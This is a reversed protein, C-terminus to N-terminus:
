TGRTAVPIAHGHSAKELASRLAAPFRFVSIVYNMGFLWLWTLGIVSLSFLARDGSSLIPLVGFMFIMTITAVVFLQVFSIHYRIEVTRDRQHFEVRGSSIPALLNWNSVLRFLGGTFDIRTTTTSIKSAKAQRLVAEIIAAVQPLDATETLITGESSFPFPM